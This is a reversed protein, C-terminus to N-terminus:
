SKRRRFALAAIGGTLLLASTPEPVVSVGFTESQSLAGLTSHTGSVEFTMEYDGLQSFAVNLHVHAGVPIVFTDASNIGNSSAMDFVLDGTNTDFHYISFAGGSPAVLGTLTFTIGTLWEPPTFGEEAAFGMYPVGAVPSSSIRWFTESAAVGIPDWDRGSSNAQRTARAPDDLVAVLDGAEFEEDPRPMGDVTGGEIHWHPELAGGEFAVGIDGHGDTWLMQSYAPMATIALGLTLVASLSKRNQTKKHKM